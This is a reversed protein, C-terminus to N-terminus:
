FQLNPMEHQVEGEEEEEGGPAAVAHHNTAAGEGATAEATANAVDAAEAAIIERKAFRGRVRVRSDALTKRCAYKIGRNYNRLNRKERYKLVRQWREEHTYPTPLESSPIDGTSQIRRLSTTTKKNLHNGLHNGNNNNSSNNNNAATTTFTASAAAANPPSLFALSAAAAANNLDVFSVANRMIGM